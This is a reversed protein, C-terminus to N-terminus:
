LRDVDYQIYIAMQLVTRTTHRKNTDCTPKTIDRTQTLTTHSRFLNESKTANQNKKTASSELGCPDPDPRLASGLLNHISHITTYPQTHNHIATYPETNNHASTISVMTNARGTVKNVLYAKKSTEFVKRCGDILNLGTIGLSNYGM